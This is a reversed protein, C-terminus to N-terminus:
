SRGAARALRQVVRVAERVAASVEGRPFLRERHCGWDVSYVGVRVDEVDVNFEDAFYHQLLPMRLETEWQESVRGILYAGYGGSTIVDVRSVEGTMQIDSGLDLSIRVGVAVFTHGSRRFQEVYERLGQRYDQIKRQMRASKAFRACAGDFYGEAAAVSNRRHFEYVALQWYRLVSTRHVEGGGRAMRRAYAEPNLRVDELARHPIRM